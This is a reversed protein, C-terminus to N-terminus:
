ETTTTTTPDPVVALVITSGPGAPSAPGGLRMGVRACAYSYATFPELGHEETLLEFAQDLARQYAAEHTEGIGVCLTDRGVRLRPYSLRRDKELDIRLTAAGAAELSICSPEAQGMAAHLDGVSLLAGPVQVPLLLTAGPSLERLDMNGGFHYAPMMTSGKGDAPAVGVCGIMPELSVSVGQGLLVRDDEVPTEAIRMQDTRAGLRGFGPLWVAWAREIEIDLVEIRLADGPEAGVVRVPGSVANLREPGIDMISEGSALRRIADDGTEFRVVDGPEIELVPDITPDFAFARQEKSVVHSGGGLSHDRIEEKVTM